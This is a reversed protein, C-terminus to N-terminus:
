EVLEVKKKNFLTLKTSIKNIHFKIRLIICRADSLTKQLCCCIPAMRSRDKEYLLINKRKKKNKSLTTPEIGM